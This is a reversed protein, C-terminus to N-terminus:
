QDQTKSSINRSKLPEREMLSRLYFGAIDYSEFKLNKWPHISIKEIKKEICRVWFRFDTNKLEAVHRADGLAIDNWGQLRHVHHFVPFALVDNADNRFHDLFEDFRSLEFFRSENYVSGGDAPCRLPLHVIFVVNFLWKFFSVFVTFISTYEEVNSRYIFRNINNESTIERLNDFFFCFQWSRM